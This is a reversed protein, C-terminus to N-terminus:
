KHVNLYSIAKQLLEISDNSFGLILNCGYCILGRVKGTNHDHDISLQTMKEKKGLNRKEECKCIACKDNSAKILEIYEEYSLGYKRATRRAQYQIFNLHHYKAAYDKYREPNEKRNNQTWEQRRERTKANYKRNKEQVKEKNLLNYNKRYENQCKYCRYTKKTIGILKKEIKHIECFKVKM